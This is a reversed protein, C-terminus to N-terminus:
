YVQLYYWGRNRCFEGAQKASLAFRALNVFPNVGIMTQPNLAMFFCRQVGYKYYGSIFGPGPIHVPQRPVCLSRAALYPGLNNPLQSSPVYYRADCRETIGLQAFAQSTGFCALLALMILRASKM